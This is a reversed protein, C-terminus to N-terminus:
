EDKAPIPYLVDLQKNTWEPDKHLNQIIFQIRKTIIADRVSLKPKPLLSLLVCLLWLGIVYPMITYFWYDVKLNM